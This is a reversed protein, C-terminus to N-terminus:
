PTGGEGPLDSLRFEAQTPDAEVTRTLTDASTQLSDVSSQKFRQQQEGAMRTGMQLGHEASWLKFKMGAESSPANQGLNDAMGKFQPAFKEMGEGNPGANMSINKYMEQGQTLANIKADALWLEDETHKIREAVGAFISAVHDFQRQAHYAVQGLERAAGENIQAPHTPAVPHPQGLDEYTPVTPM